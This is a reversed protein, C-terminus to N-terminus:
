IGKAQNESIPQMNKNWIYIRSTDSVDLEARSIGGTAIHNKVCVNKLTGDSNYEASCVFVERVDDTDNTFEIVATGNKIIPESIDFTLEKLVLTENIGVKLVTDSQWQTGNFSYIKGSILDKYSRKRDLWDTDNFDSWSKETTSSNMIVTYCDYKTVMLTQMCGDTDKIDTWTEYGETYMDAYGYSDYYGNTAHVRCLNNRMISQRDQSNVTNYMKTTYAPNRWNLAMYIRKGNDKIVVNRAMEDAWAYSTIDDDEMIFDYSENEKVATIIEDFSDYLDVFQIINEEFHVNSPKLGDYKSIDQQELYNEIIKLATSNKLTLAGYVDIPYRETGPYYGNRNSIIGETYQQAAFVGDSLKKGTFYYHDIADYVTNLYKKYEFGYTQKAIQVIESLEMIANAGYDGSYGGQVSGFNELITGKPSVWYASTVLNKALGFNIDLVTGANGKKLSLSSNAKRLVADFNLAAISNAMDQNPAHGYGGELTILYDRAAACMKTWATIRATDTVGDGDSDILKYKTTEDLSDWVSLVAAGISRLGFGTLNNGSAESREPGGIWGDNSYFGGNSGQARCMFDVAEIIRELLETRETADIGLDEYNNYAYAAIELVNLPTMNQKLMYNKSYYANKWDDDSISKWKWANSRIIMGQMYLPANEGYIQWEKFADVAAIVATKLAAKQNEMASSDFISYQNDVNGSYKGDTIGYETPNFSASQTMFVGYIGRSSETQEKVSVNAYAASGGTSYLRLSVSEKGKTYIEPIIYTAYIFGGDYQPTSSTTNVEVWDRRDILSNRHPQATNNRNMNGSVPDVVWLITDGTDGGWLQVTLYNTKDPSCKLNILMSGNSDMTRYTYLTGDIDKTLIESARVAEFCNKTESDTDGINICDTFDGNGSYYYEPPTEAKILYYIDDAKILKDGEFWKPRTVTGDKSLYYEGTYSEGEDAITANKINEASFNQIKTTEVVIPDSKEGAAFVKAAVCALIAVVVVGIATIKYIKM